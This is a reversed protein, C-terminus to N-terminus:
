PARETTTGARGPASERRGATDDLPKMDRCVVMTRLSFATSLISEVESDCGDEAWSGDDRQEAQLATVLERVWDREGLFEGELGLTRALTLRSYALGVGPPLLRGEAFLWTLPSRGEATFEARALARMQEWRANRRLDGVVFPPATAEASRSLHGGAHASTSTGVDSLFHTAESLDEPLDRENRLVEDLKPFGVQELTRDLVYKEAAEAFGRLQPSEVQECVSRLAAAVVASSFVDLGGAEEHYYGGDDHRFRNLYGVARLREALPFARADGAAGLAWLTLGTTLAPSAGPEDISGISGLEGQRTLLWTAAREISETVSVRESAGLHFGSDPATQALPVPAGAGLLALSAILSV